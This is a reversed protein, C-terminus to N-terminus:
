KGSAGGSHLVPEHTRPARRASTAIELGQLLCCARALGTGAVVGGKLVTTVLAESFACTPLCPPRIATGPAGFQVFIASPDSLFLHSPIPHASFLQAPPPAPSVTPDSPDWM